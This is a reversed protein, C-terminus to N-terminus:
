EKSEARRGRGMSEAPGGVEVGVRRSSVEPVTVGQPLPPSITEDWTGTVFINAEGNRPKQWVGDNSIRSRQLLPTGDIGKILRYVKRRLAMYRPRESGDLPVEDIREEELVLGPMRVQTIELCGPVPILNTDNGAFARTTNGDLQQDFVQQSPEFGLGDINLELNM